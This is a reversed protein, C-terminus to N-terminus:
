GAKLPSLISLFVPVRRVLNGFMKCPTLKAHHLKQSFSVDYFRWSMKKKMVKFFTDILLYFTIAPVLFYVKQLM